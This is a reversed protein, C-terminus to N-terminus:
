QCIMAKRLNVLNQRMETFYNKGQAQESDSLGELPNLVLTEAGVESAITNALKPGVLTEFFIVKIGKEKALKTVAALDQVGPEAEPSIGVISNQVFGYRSATYSFAEHATIIDKKECSRLGSSFDRDLMYLKTVLNSSNARYVNTATPDIEILKKTILNTIDIMFIPDLWVHPDNNKALQEGVKLLKDQPVFKEADAAWPELRAGNIVVLDSQELLLRDGTTLEYDHPESGAPTINYVSGRTGMIEKAVFYYPYFSAVVVPHEVAKKPRDTIVLVLVLIVLVIPVFILVLKKINM